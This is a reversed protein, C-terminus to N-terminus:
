VVDKWQVQELYEALTEARESSDVLKGALDRLRGQKHKAPRSVNRVDRWAGGRLAEELWPRRDKKASAKVARNLEM